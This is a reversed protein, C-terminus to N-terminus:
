RRGQSGTQRPIEQLKLKYLLEFMVLNIEFQSTRM